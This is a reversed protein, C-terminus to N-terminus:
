RNEKDTWTPRFTQWDTIASANKTWHERWNAIERERGLISSIRNGSINCVAVDGPQLDAEDWPYKPKPTFAEPFAARLRERCHTAGSTPIPQHCEKCTDTM